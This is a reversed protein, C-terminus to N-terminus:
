DCAEIEELTDADSLCDLGDDLDDVATFVIVMGWTGLALALLSTILGAVTLKKATSLGRKLRGRNSLGLILGVAGLAFAIFGTLPILGFLMGVVGLSLAAIALGNKPEQVYVVGPQGPASPAPVATGAVPPAAGGGTAPATQETWATGDWYRNQGPVQADPYWGPPTQTM